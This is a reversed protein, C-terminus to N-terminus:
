VARRAVARDSNLVGLVGGQGLSHAGLAKVRNDGQVDVRGVARPALIEVGTAGRAIARRCQTAAHNDLAIRVLAIDEGVVMHELPAGLRGDGDVVLGVGASCDAIVGADVQGHDGDRHAVEGNHFPAVAVAEVHALPTHCDARRQTVLVGARRTDDRSHPAVARDLVAAVGVVVGVDDLRIGGDVRAVRATRKYVTLALENADHLIQRRIALRRGAQAKGNRLASRLADGLLDDGVAALDSRGEQAHHGIRAAGRTGCAVADFDCGHDLAGSSGLRTDLGAVHEGLDVVSSDAAVRIELAGDRGLGSAVLHGQCPRM